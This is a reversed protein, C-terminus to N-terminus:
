VSQPVASVPRSTDEHKAHLEEMPADVRYNMTEKMDGLFYCALCAVVGFPAAIIYVVRLSDAFAQKLATIAAAIISPSVGPVQGLTATGNSTLAKIFARLSTFPLGAGQAAAAIYNPLKDDLRTSFAAAYIATFVTAAVARSSTTVATATAILHHPTSLQVGSVILILPAGFGAGAIAAFILSNLSDDPEITALGITGATFLLFGMFLPSRITRLRTSWYGWVVTTLM